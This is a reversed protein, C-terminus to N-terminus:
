VSTSGLWVLLAAASLILPGPHKFIGVPGRRYVTTVLGLLAYCSLLTGSLYTIGAAFTAEPQIGTAILWGGLLAFAITVFHWSIRLVVRTNGPGGFRNSPLQERGIKRLAEDGVVGHVVAGVLMMSGAAVLAWSM